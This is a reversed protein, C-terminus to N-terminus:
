FPVQGGTIIKDEQENYDFKKPFKEDILDNFAQGQETIYCKYSLRNKFCEVKIYNEVNTYRQLTVLVRERSRANMISLEAYLIRFGVPSNFGAFYGDTAKDVKM